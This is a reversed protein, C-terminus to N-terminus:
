LRSAVAKPPRAQGCHELGRVADDSTFLTLVDTYSRKATAYDGQKEALQARTMAAGGYNLALLTLFRDDQLRGGFVGRLSYTHWVRETEAYLAAESPRKGKPYVRSVMGVAALDYHQNLYDGFSIEKGDDGTFLPNMCFWKPVGGPALVCVPTGHLVADRIIRRMPDQTVAELVSIGRGPYLARVRPYSRKLDDVYWFNTWNQYRTDYIGGLICRRVVTVDPRISEITQLYLASATATDDASEILLGHPPVSALLNRGYDYCTWNGSLDVSRHAWAQMPVLSFAALAAFAAFAPRKAPELRPAFTEWLGFAGWATWVSLVIYSPIYYIYGNYIGYNIVFGIDAVFIWTLLFALPREKGARWLYVLGFGAIAVVPWFFELHMNNAYFQLQGWVERLSMHFMSESYARGTVHYYFAFPTEVDGWNYAPHMRARIPLYLYILLPLLGLGLTKAWEMRVHPERLRLLRPESWLVFTLFGPLFLTNTQHCTLAFGYGVALMRLDHSHYGRARWRSALYILGCTWFAALTYTETVLCQQWFTFSFALLGGAMLALSRPLRMARAAGYLCAVALSGCVASFVNMRWIISGVPLLLTWAKGLICYLPYGTPHPIGLTAAVTALEGCDGWYLTPCLTRLYVCFVTTALVFALLTDTHRRLFPHELLRDFM